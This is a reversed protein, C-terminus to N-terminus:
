CPAHNASLPLPSGSIKRASFDSNSRRLRGPILVSFDGAYVECPEFRITQLDCVASFSDSCVNTPKVRSKLASPRAM